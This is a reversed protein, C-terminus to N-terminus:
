GSARVTKGWCRTAAAGAGGGGGGPQLRQRAPWARRVPGGVRLGTPARPCWGSRAAGEAALPRSSWVYLRGRGGGTVWSKHADLRVGDAMRPRRASRRGSTAARDPRPSPWRPWRAGRPSRARRAAESGHAEIVAAAAYHMCVVMATSACSRAIREVVYTAARHGEGLGGVEPASVLGLLGAPGPCGPSRSPFSGARDM